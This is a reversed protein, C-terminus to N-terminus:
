SARLSQTQETFRRELLAGTTVSGYEGRLEKIRDPNSPHTATLWRLAQESTGTDLRELLAVLARPAYGVQSALRVGHTDAELEMERSRGKELVTYCLDAVQGLEEGSMASLAKSALTGAIQAQQVRKMEHRAEVHWIEHGLIAALEAESEMRSLLGKSVMIFGGPAAFANIEDTDLIAFNYEVDRRSAQWSVATGVLALYQEVAPNKYVGYTAQLRAAVRTGIKIEEETSIPLLRKAEKLVERAKTIKGADIKPFAGASTVVVAAAVAAGRALRSNM